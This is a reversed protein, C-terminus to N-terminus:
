VANEGVSNSPNFIIDYHQLQGRYTSPLVSYVWQEPTNFPIIGDLEASAGQPNPPPSNM